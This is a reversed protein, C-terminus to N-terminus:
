QVIFGFTRWGLLFLLLFLLLNGGFGVYQGGQLDARNVWFGFLLWIVMLVWFLIGLPM